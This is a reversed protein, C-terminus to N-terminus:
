KVGEALKMEHARNRASEFICVGQKYWAPIRHFPIGLAGKDYWPISELLAMPAAQLMTHPCVGAYDYRALTNPHAAAESLRRIAEDPKGGRRYCVHSQRRKREHCAECDWRSGFM